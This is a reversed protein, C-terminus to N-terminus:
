GTCQWFHIDLQSHSETYSNPLQFCILSSVKYYVQVVVHSWIHHHTHKKTYVHLLNSKDFASDM